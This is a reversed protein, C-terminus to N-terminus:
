FREKLGKRLIVRRWSGAASRMELIRPSYKIGLMLLLAISFVVLTGSHYILWASLPFITLAMGYSFTLYRSIILLLILTGIYVPIAQPMLFALIGICSAGGKGGRFRLFVPFAHGLVAAAGALLQVTLSTGLWRALFIAAAGKAIDVALVLIGTAIGISYIVNMAGMNRSGVERIDTGKKLRGAIYAAPFSGILYAAAIAIATNM